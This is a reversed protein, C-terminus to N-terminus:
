KNNLSSTLVNLQEVQQQLKMAEKNAKDREARAQMINTAGIFLAFSAVLIVASWPYGKVAKDIAHWANRAIAAHCICIQRLAESTKM